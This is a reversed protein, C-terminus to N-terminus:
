APNFVPKFNRKKNITCPIWPFRCLLDHYSPRRKVRSLPNGNCLPVCGHLFTSECNGELLGGPGARAKGCPLRCGASRPSPLEARPGPAADEEHGRQTGSRGWADGRPERPLPPAPPTSCVPSSHPRIWGRPSPSRAKPLWRPGRAPAQLCPRGCVAAQQLLDASKQAATAHCATCCHAHLAQATLGADDGLATRLGHRGQLLGVTSHSASGTVKM